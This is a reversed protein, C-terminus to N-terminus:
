DARQDAPGHESRKLYYEIVSRGLKVLEDKRGSGNRGHEAVFGPRRRARLYQHAAIVCVGEWGITKLKEYLPLSGRSTVTLPMMEPTNHETGFTIVFGQGNFFDVFDSLLGPDNRGPMLEICGVGLAALSSCLKAPDREFETFRGAADDLLVPYCPIGGAHAIIGIIKGIELFSRGDEEVFAPGGAKLLNARIENELAAPASPGTRSKKGGYLSELFRMQEDPSPFNEVALSRLARAIHRERVLGQAYTRKIEEYSLALSPHLHRILGNLRDVM